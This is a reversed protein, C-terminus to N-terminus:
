HPATIFSWYSNLIITKHEMAYQITTAPCKLERSAQFRSKWITETGDLSKQLIQKARHHESKKFDYKKYLGMIRAHKMNEIHTVWELNTFHNNRKIGDIHNVEPKNDPNLVFAFAVLRHAKITKPKRNKIITYQLYGGCDNGKIIVNRQTNFLVGSESIKYIGEYGVVDKFIENPLVILPSKPTPM